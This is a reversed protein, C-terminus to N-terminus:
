DRASEYKELEIKWQKVRIQKEIADLSEYVASEVLKELNQNNIDINSIKDAIHQYLSNPEHMSGQVLPQLLGQSINEGLRQGIDQIRQELIGGVIPLRRLIQTLEPTDEIAQNVVQGVQYSIQHQQLKLETSLTEQLIEALTTAFLQRHHDILDHIIKRHTSSSNLEHRVGDVVTMVVRDSLEEMVLKYYFTLTKLLKQPVVHHGMEHLRYGIVIARFLRLFRLQPTIALLEYWHIFPFFFWRQHHKRIIAISWRVTFEILLFSIFWSETTIVWPNLEQRYFSLVADLQLMGFLWHAFNSMLIANSLLCFLNIVIIGMMFIDYILYIKRETMNQGHASQDSQAQPLPASM